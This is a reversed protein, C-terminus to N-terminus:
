ESPVMWDRELYYSVAFEHAFQEHKATKLVPVHPAIFSRFAARREAQSDKGTSASFILGLDDFSSRLDLIGEPCHEPKRTSLYRLMQDTAFPHLCKVEYPCHKTELCPLCDTVAQYVTHGLGYPGTEFCWASSLFFATVPVGLHAALHMTGTDPTIISDLGSVIDILGKWDTKGTFDEAINSIKKPLTRLISRAVHQESTSGLLVLRQINGQSALTTIIRALIDAPLSRRSERGAMVVGLGGGRPKAPPNVQDPALLQPAYGAWFDVLNLALRRERSWRMALSPWFSVRDQGNFSAYGYVSDPDFLSALRYNLGSLNLNYIADFTEDQLRAFIKRNDILIAMAGSCADLGSAHATIAHIACQPYVLKALGALSHDLCLHVEDGQASLSAILRKTQILDGFRALQIVLVKRM